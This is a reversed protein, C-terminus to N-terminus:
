SFWSSVASGKEGDGCRSFCGPLCLCSSVCDLIGNDVTEFFFNIVKAVFMLSGLWVSM